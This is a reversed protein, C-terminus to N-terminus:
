KLTQLGMLSSKLKEGVDKVKKMLVKMIQDLHAAFCFCRSLCFYFM